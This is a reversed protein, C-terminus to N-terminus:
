ACISSTTRATATATLGLITQVGLRSLVDGVALFSPRFNHSWESVCHAEDVCAFGLAPLSHTRCERCVGDGGLAAAEAGAAGCRCGAVRPLSLLFSQFKADALREPAVYLLRFVAAGSSDRM